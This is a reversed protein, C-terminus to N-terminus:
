KGGAKKVLEEFYAKSFPPYVYGDDPIDKGRELYEDLNANTIEPLPVDIYSPIDKGQLADVGVYISMAGMWNPQGTAWADLKNEKWMQLFQKYNEGTIPVMAHGTRQMALVAGASLAGGQSWIGDIDSHAFLLNTVAEQAPAVNYQTNTTGVIEIGKAAELIPKAGEWRAESVSVGAPGNLALIKGKGGLKDVLWKASLEGWKKQDTNIKTTLKDTTVLSDFNVVAVGKDCAQEVARNLATASGAEVIILDAGADVASQIQQVQRSSDGDANSVTFSKVLGQKKLDDAAKQMLDLTEAMWTPGLYIDAWVISYPPKRDGKICASAASAPTAAAIAAMLGAGVLARRCMRNM